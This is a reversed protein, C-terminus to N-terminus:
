MYPLGFRGGTSCSYSATLASFSQVLACTAFNGSRRTAKQLTLGSRGYASSSIARQAASRRSFRPRLSCKPLESTFRVLGSSAARSRSTNASAFRWRMAM